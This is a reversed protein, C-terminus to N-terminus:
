SLYKKLKKIAKQLLRSIHMQSLELQEAIESQTYGEYYRLQIIKKEREELNSLADKLTARNLTQEDKADMGLSDLLSFSEDDSSHVPKDLSVVFNSHGVEMCELVAEETLELGKAVDQITPIRGHEATFAKNYQIIKYHQNQIRRPLKVVRSKDRLYHKIEGIINSSAFTAFTIGKEPDFNELSKLLGISGVQALDPVDEKRFGMKRAIYEVLPKYEAVIKDKTAPSKDEIYQVVLDEKTQTM